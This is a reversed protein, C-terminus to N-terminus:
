KFYNFLIWLFYGLFLPFNLLQLMMLKFVGFRVHTWDLFLFIFCLFMSTCSLFYVFYYQIGFIVEIGTYLKLKGIYDPDSGIFFHEISVHKEHEAMYYMLFYQVINILLAILWVLETNYRKLIAM